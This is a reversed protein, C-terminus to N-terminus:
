PVALSPAVAGNVDILLHTDVSTFVCVKGGVGVKAFVANPVVDGGAFNVNSANPVDDGCPFVTAFGPGGPRVATVNLLVAEADLPVGGRGAVLVETVSGAARRGGGLFEGDVTSLGEGVRSELLRAPVLSSVSSGAPAFGNVDILLHTDVSTFVCVKGGVGVKAFVANPVV